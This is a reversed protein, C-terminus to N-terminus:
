FTLPIGYTYTNQMLPWLKILYIKTRILELLNLQGQDFKLNITSTAKGKENEAVVIYSGSDIDSSNNVELTLM